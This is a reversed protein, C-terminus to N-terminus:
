AQEQEREDVAVRELITLVRDMKRNLMGVDLELNDLRALWEGLNIAVVHNVRDTLAEAHQRTAASLVTLAESLRAETDSIHRTPSM